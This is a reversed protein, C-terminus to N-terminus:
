FLEYRMNLYVNASSDVSITLDTGDAGEFCVTESWPLGAELKDRYIASGGLSITVTPYGVAEPDVHGANRIVRIRQGPPVSVIEQNVVPGTITMTAALSARLTQRVSDNLLGLAQTNVELPSSRLETETLGDTQPILEALQVTPLPYIAPPIPFNQVEVDVPATRLEENTLADKQPILENFQNDAIFMEDVPEWPRLLEIQSPPLPYWTPWESVTVEDDTSAYSQSDLRIYEKKIEKGNVQLSLSAPLNEETVYAYPLTFEVFSRNNRFRESFFTEEGNKNTAVLVGVSNKNFFGMSMIQVDALPQVIRVM